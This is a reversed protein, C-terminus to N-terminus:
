RCQPGRITRHTKDFVRLRYVIVTRLNLDFDSVLQYRGDILRLEVFDNGFVRALDLGLILVDFGSHRHRLIVLASRPAWIKFPREGFFGLAQALDELKIIKGFATDM